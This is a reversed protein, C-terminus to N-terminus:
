RKSIDGSGVISKVVNLPNGKYDIDGSGAISADLNESVYLQIDGAGVVSILASRTTLEYSSIDGSGALSAEFQDTRGILKLDGSGALNVNLHHSQINLNIDGSGALVASFHKTKIIDTSEIDGSGNLIVESIDEFPVTVVIRKSLSPRVDYGKKVKIILRSNSVQTKIYEQLNEEAEVKIVGEIGKVLEVDLSGILEISEYMKTNRTEHSIKGNGNIKTSGFFQAQLSTIGCFLVILLVNFKKM